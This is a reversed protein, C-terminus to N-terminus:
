GAVCGSAVAVRGRRRELGLGVLCEGGQGGGGQGGGGGGGYGQDGGGGGGYGGRDDYGGRGGGGGYGGSCSPPLCLSWSLSLSLSLSLALISFPSCEGVSFFFLRDGGGGGPPHAPLVFVFLAPAFAATTPLKGGGGGYGGQGGGGGYGGRDDYGGGGGYGGRDGGYGGGGGYGGDGGGGGGYGGRDGGYGGGGYGGGPGGGYGGGGGKPQAENVRLPRGDLEYGNLASCAREAQEAPMSVFAFGRVRGSERDTPLFCDTVTGQQEFLKRVSEEVTDFSLNGVYLKVEANGASNFGGHGGPGYGAGGGGSNSQRALDAPGEGRPKSENVRVTRGDIQSQDTKAIAAEAAARTAMTVFGFGRPRGTGRETPMFVDTVEGFESYIQRLRNDDTDAPFPFSAFRLSPFPLSPSPTLLCPCFPAPFFPPFQELAPAAAASGVSVLFESYDINGVYLKVEEGSPAHPDGGGNPAPPNAGAEPAPGSDSPPPGDGGETSAPPADAPPLADAPPPADAAGGRDPSRSRSRSRESM